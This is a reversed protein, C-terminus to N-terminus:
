VSVLSPILRVSARRFGFGLLHLSVYLIGILRTSWSRMRGSMVDVLMAKV